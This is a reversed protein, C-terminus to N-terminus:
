PARGACRRGGKSGGQAAKSLIVRRPHYERARTQRAAPQRPCGRPRRPSNCWCCTCSGRANPAGGAAKSGGAPPAGRRWSARQRCNARDVCFNHPRRRPGSGVWSGGLHGEHHDGRVIAMGMVGRPSTLIAQRNSLCNRIAAGRAGSAKCGGSAASRAALLSKLIGIHQQRGQVGKARMPLSHMTGVHNCRYFQWIYPLQGAGAVRKHNAKFWM